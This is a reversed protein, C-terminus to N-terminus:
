YINFNQSYTQAEVEWGGWGRGGGVGSVCVCLCWPVEMEGKSTKKADIWNSNVQMLRLSSIPLHNESIDLTLFSHHAIIISLVLFDLIQM